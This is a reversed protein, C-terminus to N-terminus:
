VRMRKDQHICAKHVQKRTGLAGCRAYEEHFGFKSWPAETCWTSSNRGPIKISVQPRYYKKTYEIDNAMNCRPIRRAAPMRAEANSDLWNRRAGAKEVPESVKNSLTRAQVEYFYTQMPQETSAATHMTSGAAGDWLQLKAVAAQAPCEM